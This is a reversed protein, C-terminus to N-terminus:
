YYVRQKLLRVRRTVRDEFFLSRALTVQLLSSADNINLVLRTITSSLRGNGRSNLLNPVLTECPKQIKRIRISLSPDNHALLPTM